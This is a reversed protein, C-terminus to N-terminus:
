YNSFTNGGQEDTRATEKRRSNVVQDVRWWFASEVARVLGTSLFDLALCREWIFRIANKNGKIAVGDVFMTAEYRDTQKFTCNNMDMIKKINDRSPIPRGNRNCEFM